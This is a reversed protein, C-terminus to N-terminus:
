APQRTVREFTRESFLGSPQFSAQENLRDVARPLLDCITCRFDV